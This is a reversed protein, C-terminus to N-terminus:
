FREYKDMPGHLLQSLKAFLQIAVLRLALIFGHEALERCSARMERNVGFLEHLVVILSAPLSDRHEHLSFSCSIRDRGVWYEGM